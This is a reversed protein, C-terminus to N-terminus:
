SFNNITNLLTIYSKINNYQLIMSLGPPLFFLFEAPETLFGNCSKRFNYPRIVVAKLQNITDRKCKSLEPICKIYETTRIKILM